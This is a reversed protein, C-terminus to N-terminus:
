LALDFPLDSIDRIRRGEILVKLTKVQEKTGIATVAEQLEYLTAHYTCDVDGMGRAVSALRSPLPEMTVVVIHPSKGKRHRFLNLAETRVNQARDSRITWKCSVSAHLIPSAHGPRNAARLPTHTAVPEGDLLPESAELAGNAEPERAVIIDPKVLYDTPWMSQLGPDKELAEDLAALHEYQEFEM